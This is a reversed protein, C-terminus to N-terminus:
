QAKKVVYVDCKAQQVVASSVSGMLVRKLGTRGKSGMVVLDISEEETFDLITNAPHGELLRADYSVGADKLLKESEELIQQSHRNMKEQLDPPVEVSLHSAVYPPGVVENQHVHVLLIQAEDMLKSMRAAKELAWASQESGDTCVLIKM